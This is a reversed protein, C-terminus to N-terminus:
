PNEHTPLDLVVTTGQSSTNITMTGGLASLVKNSLFLGLGSRTGSEVQGKLVRDRLPGPIGPGNDTVTLRIRSDHRHASIELAGGKDRLVRKANEVLEIIIGLLQDTDTQVLGNKPADSLEKIIKFEINAPMRPRILAEAKRLVDNVNVPYVVPLFLDLHDLLLQLAVKSYQVSIEIVDCQKLLEPSNQSLDRLQDLSAAISLLERRLSHTVSGCVAKYYDIGQPQM